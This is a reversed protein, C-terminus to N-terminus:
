VRFGLSQVRFELSHMANKFGLFFVKGLVGPTALRTILVKTIQVSKLVSADALNAPKEPDQRTGMRATPFLVFEVVVFGQKKVLFAM